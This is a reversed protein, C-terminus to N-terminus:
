DSNIGLETRVIKQLALQKELHEALANKFVKGDDDKAIRLAMRNMFAGYDQFAHGAKNSCVAMVLLSAEEFVTYAKTWKLTKANKATHWNIDNEKKEVQTMSHLGVLADDIGALARTAEFLVERRLEWRRQRDWVEDSIKSEIEKTTQTVARVQDVLKDIDEHTALNEGKKTIYGGFYAGAWGGVLSFVGALLAEIM